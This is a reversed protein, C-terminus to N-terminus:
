DEKVKLKYEDTELLNLIKCIAGEFVPKDYSRIDNKEEMDEKTQKIEIEIINYTNITKSTCIGNGQFACIACVTKDYKKQNNWANFGSVM